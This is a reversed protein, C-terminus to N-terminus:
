PFVLVDLMCRLKPVAVRNCGAKGPSPLGFKRPLFGMPAICNYFTFTFVFVFTFCYLVVVVFRGVFLCFSLVDDFGNTTLRVQLM